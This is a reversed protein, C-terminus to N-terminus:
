NNTRNSFRQKFEDKPMIYALYYYVAKRYEEPTKEIMWYHPSQKYKPIDLYLVPIPNERTGYSPDNLQSQCVRVKVLTNKIDDSHNQMSEYSSILLIRFYKNRNGDFITFQNNEISSMTSRRGKNLRFGTYISEFKSDYMDELDIDNIDIEVSNDIYESVHEEINRTSNQPKTFFYVFGILGAILVVVFWM